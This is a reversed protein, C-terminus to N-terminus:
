LTYEQEQVWLLFRELTEQHGGVRDIFRGNLSPLELMRPVIYILSNGTQRYWRLLHQYLWDSHNPQGSLVVGTPLDYPERDRLEEDSMIIHAHYPYAQLAYVLMDHHAQVLDQPLIVQSIGLSILATVLTTMQSMSIENQAGHILQMIPQHGMFDSLNPQPIRKHLQHPPATADLLTPLAYPQRHERRCAPCGGCALGVPTYITEFASAICRLDSGMQSNFLEVLQECGRIVQNLEEERTPEFIEKFGQESNVADSQLIEILIGSYDKQARMEDSTLQAIRIMEARQMLLLVHENWELNKDSQRMNQHRTAQRNIYWFRGERHGNHFMSEWREWAIEPTIRAKSATSVAYKLDQETAILLSISSCGDRGSRGVEQYFRDTNEPFTAHIITRVDPKDVGLGFASTAIMLDIRNERWERIRQLREEAGTKGTFTAMRQYGETRLFRFWEEADDPSTLYVIAPRPLYRLAETVYQRKHVYPALAMWYGIEPRLQNVQVRCFEGGPLTFLQELARYSAVSITASLLLLCLQGQSVEHLLRFYTSLLQFDTRFRAGWSEILHAEDVVIRKLRGATAAEIFVNYFESGILSEPSMFILPITGAKVGRRIIARTDSSTDGAIYYPQYLPDTNRFFRQASESQDIALAVTPVIVLTTGGASQNGQSDVWTPLYMCLSKGGGTPLIVLTTSGPVAFLSSQVAQRQGDSQYTMIAKKNSLMMDYLTGDGFVPTHSRRKILVDIDYADPLWTPLWEHAIVEVRESNSHHVELGFREHEAAISAWWDAPLSLTGVQRAVQRILVLFDASGVSRSHLQSQRALLLRFCGRAQALSEDLLDEQEKRIHQITEDLEYSDFFLAEQTLKFVDPM